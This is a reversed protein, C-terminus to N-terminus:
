QCSTGPDINVDLVFTGAIDYSWADIGIVYSDGALVDYSFQSQWSSAGPHDDDCALEVGGSAPCGDFLALITDMDGSLTDFTACGSVPAEWQLTMDNSNQSSCSAQFFDVAANALTGSIIGDGEVDGLDFSPCTAAACAIDFDCDSDDCDLDGDSDNDVGDACDPEFTPTIDLSYTGNETSEYADVVIAISEGETVFFDEIVSHYLGLSFDEDDNCELEEGVCDEMIYLVTDYDSGETSFTYTGSAPATWSLVDEEGGGGAGASCSPSLSDGLGANVGSAVAPGTVSGIDSGICYDFCYLDGACDSDACDVLGDADDDFGDDCINETCSFDDSCDDDDCDTFGDNDDDIGDNCVYEFCAPDEACDDDDCDILGDGAGNGTIGDASEDNDLGDTCDSEFCVAEAFCLEDDCDVFGNEDNDIGDTCSSENCAQLSGCDDVDDCDVLGDGDNDTGDDCAFEAGVCDVGDTFEIDLVFDGSSSSSYGDVVILYDEGTEVSYTLLSRTSTGGDDDCDLEGANCEDFIRLVTDYTSDETDFTACGTGPATWLYSFDVASSSSSGCGTGAANPTAYSGQYDDNGVSLNNSGSAVGDGSMSGLDFNPCAADGCFLDLACDDDDCDALGDSENDLGDGCDLETNCYEDDACDPDDCDALSDGDDDVGDSCFVEVDHLIDLSFTGEGGAASDIVVVVETGAEMFVGELSSAGGGADSCELEEGNCGDLIYLVTDYDSGDTSFSYYNDAPATWLYAFDEGSTDASCDTSATNDDNAGVNTQSDLGSGTSEGLDGITCSTFCYEDDVCDDDACDILGDGIGDGSVGNAADDNDIGDTCDTEFCGPEYPAGLSDTATCDPDDCDSLGDFDNDTGDTCDLEPCYNIDLVIDGETSSSYGDVTIVYEQGGILDAQVLSTFGEGGDENCFSESDACGGARLYLVTDTLGQYGDADPSSETDLQYCADAPATWIFSVDVGSGSFNCSGSMSNTGDAPSLYGTAIADGLASGLDSGDELCFSSCAAESACESDSCDAYGDGDEDLGDADLCVEGCDQSSACDSDACDTLGDLDDDVNDYCFAEFCGSAEACDPDECDVLGDGILTGDADANTADGDAYYDNDLGDSCNNEVCASAGACESDDCDALGDGDDDNGDDCVVEGCESVVTPDCASLDECDVLGDCNEDVGDACTEAGDTNIDGDGDDCDTFDVVYGVPESCSLMESEPDGYGDEDADAYYVLADSADNDIDGDCDNDISDCIEAAGPNASASLDDCDDSTEAYGTEPLCLEASTDAVGYGDGDADLYYTGLTTSDLAPDDSDTLGNCDNDVGDCVELNGADLFALASQDDCDTAQEEGVTGDPQECSVVSNSLDGQGDGDADLYFVPADTADDESGTCNNDLGDCLEEAGPNVASLTDDCDDSMTAYGTGPGSDCSIMIASTGYGDGDGDFYFVSGDSAKDDVSGDCDEDVGDCTETAGPFISVAGDDCDGGMEVTGTPAICMEVGSTDDGYGDGDGDTYWTTASATQLNDDADDVLGDCDNDLEDCLEPADLYVVVDADDCDDANDSYGVPLDCSTVTSDPSGYGDEDADLYYETGDTANVDVSEDCDNDVGDCVEDADPNVDALADDCDDSSESYGDPLSCDQEAINPDGFGDGDADAYFLSPDIADNDIEGDCNNDIGDCLEDVVPNVGSDTDDCDEANSVYGEPITCESVTSEADGYSDGDSDAYYTVGDTPEEDTDGDCDNDTGDCLEESDPAIAADEDDCDGDNESFGDGDDDIALPDETGDKGGDESPDCAVIFQSFTLSILLARMTEM